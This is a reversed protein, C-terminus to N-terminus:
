DAKSSQGSQNKIYLVLSKSDVYREIAKACKSLSVKGDVVNRTPFTISPLKVNKLLLDAGLGDAHIPSHLRQPRKLLMWQM